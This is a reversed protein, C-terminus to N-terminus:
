AQRCLGQAAAAAACDQRPRLWPWVSSPMRSSSSRTARTSVSTIKIFGGVRANIPTIHRWVQADDTYEVNGWHIYRSCILGIFALLVLTIVVNYIRKTLKKNSM